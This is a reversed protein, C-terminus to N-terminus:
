LGYRGGLKLFRCDEKFMRMIMVDGGDRAARQMVFEVEFGLHQDLKVAETNSAEVWGTLRRCGLRNFPYDFGVALLHRTLPVETAVHMWCNAGNYDSYIVGSVIDGDQEVGIANYEGFVAPSAVGIRQAVFAGVEDKRNCVIQRM